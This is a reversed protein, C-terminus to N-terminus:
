RGIRRSLLVLGISWFLLAIFRPEPVPTTETSVVPQLQSADPAPVVEATDARLTASSLTIIAMVTAMVSATLRPPSSKRRPSRM